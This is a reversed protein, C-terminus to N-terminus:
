SQEKQKDGAGWGGVAQGDERTVDYKGEHQIASSHDCANKPIWGPFILNPLHM